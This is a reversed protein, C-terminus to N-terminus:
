VLVKEQYKLDQASGQELTSRKKTEELQNTLSEITETLSQITEDQQKAQNM